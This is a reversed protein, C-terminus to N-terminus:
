RFCRLPSFLLPMLTADFAADAADAYRLAYRLLMPPMLMPMLADDAAFLIIARILPLLLM